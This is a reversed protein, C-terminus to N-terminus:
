AAGPSCVQAKRPLCLHAATLRTILEIMRRSLDASNKQYLEIGLKAGLRGEDLIALDLAVEDILPTIEKLTETVSAWEGPRRARSLFGPIESPDQGIVCVRFPARPRSGM